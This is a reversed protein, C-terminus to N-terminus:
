TMRRRRSRRRHITPGRNHERPMDSVDTDPLMESETSDDNLALEFEEELERKREMRRRRRNDGNRRKQGRGFAAKAGGAVGGLVSAASIVVGEVESQVAGLLSDFAQVRDHIANVSGRVQRTAFELTEDVDTVRRALTDTVHSLNASVDEVNALTPALDGRLGSVFDFVKKQGERLEKLTVFLIGLVALVALAIIILAVDAAQQLLTM